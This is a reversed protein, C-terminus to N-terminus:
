GFVLLSRTVGSRGAESFLENSSYGHVFDAFFRGPLLDAMNLGQVIKSIEITGTCFETLNM